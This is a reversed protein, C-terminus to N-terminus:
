KRLVLYTVGLTLAVGGGVVAITTWRKTKSAETSQAAAANAQAAQLNLRAQETADRANARESRRAASDCGIASQAQAISRDAAGGTYGSAVAGATCTAGKVFKKVSGWFSGLGAIGGRSHAFEIFDDVMQNSLALRMADFTAQDPAKGHRVLRRYEVAAKRALGPSIANLRSAVASHRRTRPLTSTERLIESAVLGAQAVVADPPNGVSIAGLTAYSM